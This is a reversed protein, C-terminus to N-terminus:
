ACSWGRESITLANYIYANGKITNSPLEANRSRVSNTGFWLGSRFVDRQVLQQLSSYIRNNDCRSSLLRRPQVSLIRRGVFSGRRPRDAGGGSRLGKIIEDANEKYEAYEWRREALRSLASSVKLFYGGGFLDTKVYTVNLNVKNQTVSSPSSNVMRLQLTLQDRGNNKGLTHISPYVFSAGTGITVWDFSIPTYGDITIDKVIAGFPNGTSSWTLQEENYAVIKVMGSFLGLVKTLTKKVNLM